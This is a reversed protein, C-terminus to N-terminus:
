PLWGPGPTTQLCGPRDAASVFAHAGSRDDLAPCVHERAATGLAAEEQTRIRFRRVREPVAQAPSGLLMSLDEMGRNGEAVVGVDYGGVWM